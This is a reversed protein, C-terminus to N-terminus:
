LVNICFSLFNIGGLRWARLSFQERIREKAVKAGKRSITGASPCEVNNKGDDSTTLWM